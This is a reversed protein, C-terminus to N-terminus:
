EGEDQMLCRGLDYCEVPDLECSDCCGSLMLDVLEEEMEM